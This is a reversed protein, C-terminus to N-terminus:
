TPPVVDKLARASPPDIHSLADWADRRLVAQEAKDKVLAALAPAAGKAAPGLRRLADIAATRVPREEGGDPPDGARTDKLAELLAAVIEKGAGFSPLARVAAMRTDRDQGPGACRLFTKLLAPDGKGIRALAEVAFYSFRRDDLKKTLPAVAAKAPAGVLGLTAIVTVVVKPDTEDLLRLLQPVFRKAVDPRYYLGDAADARTLRSKHTLGVHFAKLANGDGGAAYRLLAHFARRRRESPEPGSQDQSAGVLPLIAAQGIGSLIAGAAYGNHKYGDDLLRILAPIVPEARTPSRELVGLAIERVEGDPDGLREIAARLVPESPRPGLRGLHWLAHRRVAPEPSSLAKLRNAQSHLDVAESRPRSFGFRLLPYVIDADSTGGFRPLVEWVWRGDPDVELLSWSAVLLQGNALLARPWVGYPTCRGVAEGRWNFRTLQPGKPGSAILLFGGEPLLAVSGISNRPSSPSLVVEREEKTGLGVTLIVLEDPGPVSLAPRFAYATGDWNVRVQIAGQGRGLWEKGIEDSQRLVRGAADLEVIANEDCVLTHGNPLLRLDASPGVRLPREWLVKGDLGRELVKSAKGDWHHAVVRGDPRWLPWRLPRGDELVFRPVGDCGVLWLRSRPGPGKAEHSECALVLGPRRPGEDLRRLDLAKGKKQWWAQWAAQCKRRQAATATGLVAAPADDGAAYRLLEEAQWALEGSPQDLLAILAPL